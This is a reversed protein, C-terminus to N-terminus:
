EFGAGELAPLASRSYRAAYGSGTVGGEGMTERVELDKARVGVRIREEELDFRLYDGDQLKGIMGEEFPEPSTLSFWIGGAREPPLGDTFVPVDAGSDELARGLRDLRLLGPGGRPGCGCVVLIDGEEFRGGLVAEVADEESVFTRCWGLVESKGGHVLGLTETGSGRASVFVLRPHPQEPPVPPPPSPLLERLDGGVTTVDHIDDLLALLGAVGHEGFWESGSDTLAPREPALVRAMQSFGYSDAETAFAALHVIVEPGGGLALGAHLANSLSFSDVLGRSRPPDDVAAEIPGSALPSFGLGALAASFPDEPRGSLVAPLDLRLAALLIGALDESREADLLLADLDLASCAIEVSDAVWERRLAV